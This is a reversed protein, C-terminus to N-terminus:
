RFRVREQLWQAQYGPCTTFDKICLGLGAYDPAAINSLNSQISTQAVADNTEELLVDIENTHLPHSQIITAVVPPPISSSQRLLSVHYSCKCVVPQMNFDTYQGKHHPCEPISKKFVARWKQSGPWGGLGFAPKSKKSAAFKYAEKEWFSNGKGDKPM